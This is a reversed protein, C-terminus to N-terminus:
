NLCIPGFKEEFTPPTLFKDIQKQVVGMAKNTDEWEYDEIRATIYVHVCRMVEKLPLSLELLYPILQENVEENLQEHSVKM